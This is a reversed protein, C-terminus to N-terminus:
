VIIRCSSAAVYLQVICSRMRVTGHTSSPSYFRQHINSRTDDASSVPTTDKTNRWLSSQVYGRDSENMGPGGRVHNDKYIGPVVRHTQSLAFLAALGAGGSPSAQLGHATFGALQSEVEM